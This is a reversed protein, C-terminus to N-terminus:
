WGQLGGSSERRYSRMKRSSPLGSGSATLGRTTRGGGEGRLGM